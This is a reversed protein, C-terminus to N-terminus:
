MWKWKVAPRRHDVDARETLVVRAAGPRQVADIEVDRAALEHGQDARAPRPLGRQQAAQVPEHRRGRALYLDAPLRHGAGRGLGEPADPGADAEDELLEVEQAPEGHELVRPKAAESV